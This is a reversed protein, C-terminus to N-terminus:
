GCRSVRTPLARLRNTLVKFYDANRLRSDKPANPNHIPQCFKVAVRKSEQSMSYLRDAMLRLERLKATMNYRRCVSVPCHYLRGGYLYDLRIEFAKRQKIGLKYATEIESAGCDRAKVYFRELRNSLIRAMAKAVRIENNTSIRKCQNSEPLTRWSPDLLAFDILYRKFADDIGDGDNDGTRAPPNGNFAESADDKGDNDSDLDRCDPKKDKDTDPIQNNSEFADDLGDGDSDQGSPPVPDEGQGEITDPIGDDDDDLDRYDPKGDGDTDPVAEKNEFADDLGDGDSDNGSPQVPSDGQGEILDDIGDGDSDVDLYDPKGDGDTDPIPQPTGGSDGDYSDVLGDGDSDILSDATGDGDVDKGGGEIIDPIGDNDSDLDYQDSIGDGDTDVSGEVSNPIGDNDYDLDIIPTPTYSPIATPSPTPTSTPTPSLTPTLTATFTATATATPTSTLTATATFTATATATPTATPTATSTATATATNTPTPTPGVCILASSPSDDSIDETSDVQISDIHAIASFIYSGDTNPTAIQFTLTKTAGAQIEFVETWTLTNGSSLPETILAGDFFSTSAVYSAGSPSSPVTVVIDDLTVTTAGGNFISLTMTSTGGNLTCYPSGSLSSIKVFNSPSAVPSVTVPYSGTYKVPGGSIIYNVPKLPTATPTSGKIRFKYIQSYAKNSTGWGSLNLSNTYVSAVGAVTTEVSFLEFIDARWSDLSAPTLTFAGPSGGPAGTEGTVTLTLEGGVEPTGPSSTISTIKNANADLTDITSTVSLNEKCIASSVLPNSPYLSVDHYQASASAGTAKVYFYVVKTAGAALQGIHSIGNEYTALSFVNGAGSFNDLKVWLDDVASAGNNTISYGFYMNLLPTKNEELYINSSHLANITISNDDSCDNVQAQASIAFFALYLFVCLTGRSSLNVLRNLASDFFISM